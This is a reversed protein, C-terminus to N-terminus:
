PLEVRVVGATTAVLVAGPCFSVGGLANATEAAGPLVIRATELLTPSFTGLQLLLGEPGSLLVACRDGEVALRTAGTDDGAALLPGSLAGNTANLVAAGGVVLSFCRTADCAALMSATDLDVDVMDDLAPLAFTRLHTGVVAWVARAAGPACVVDTVATGMRWHTLERHALLRGSGVDVM